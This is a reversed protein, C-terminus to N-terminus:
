LSSLDQDLQSDDTSSEVNTDDLVKEAKSLDETNKVEPAEAVDNSSAPKQESAQTTVSTSSSNKDKDQQRQYVMYGAFSLIGVVGVIVIIEFVAFGLSNKRLNKM